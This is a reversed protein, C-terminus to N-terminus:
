APVREDNKINSSNRSFFYAIGALAVVVVGALVTRLTGNSGAEASVTGDAAVDLYLIEGHGATRISVAWRGELANDIDFAFVGDDDAVGTLWGNQPDDPTYVVVQANSMEEGTDYMAFVTVQTGDIEVVSEVGHAMAVTAPFLLVILLSAILTLKRMSNKKVLNASSGLM